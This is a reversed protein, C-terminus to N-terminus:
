ESVGRLSHLESKLEDKRAESWAERVEGMFQEATMKESQAIQVADWIADQARTSRRVMLGPGDPGVTIALGHPKM